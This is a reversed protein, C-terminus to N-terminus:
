GMVGHDHALMDVGAIFSHTSRELLGNSQPYFIVTVVTSIAANSAENRLLGTPLTMAIQDAEFEFAHNLCHVELM